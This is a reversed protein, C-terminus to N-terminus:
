NFIQIMLMEALAADGNQKGLPSASVPLVVFVNVEAGESGPPLQVEIKNGPLVQTTIHLASQM